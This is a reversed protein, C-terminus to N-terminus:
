LYKSNRFPEEGQGPPSFHTPGWKALGSDPKAPRPPSAAETLLGLATLNPPPLNTIRPKVV